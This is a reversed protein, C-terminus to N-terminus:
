APLLEDMKGLPNVTVAEHLVSITDVATEVCTICCQLVIKWPLIREDSPPVTERACFKALLPRFLLVRIHHHRMRLVNSQRQHMRSRAPDSVDWKLHVPLNRRWVWISRDMELVKGIAKAGLGGSDSALLDGHSGWSYLPTSYWATLLEAMMEYLKLTEVFFDNSAEPAWLSVDAAYDNNKETMSATPLSVAAAAHPTIMPSRGYTMSLTRDMLVCGHWVRRIMSTEDEPSAGAVQPLDLGLSQAIRIALGVFTWCQQSDHTSQLYQGLLLFCQVSSISQRRVLDLELFEDARRYFVDAERARHAPEIAADLNCALAFVTNLTCLFTPFEEDLDGGTWLLQYMPQFTQKDLFPYLTDVLDWYCNLLHDARHRPPLIYDDLRPHRRHSKAPTSKPSTSQQANSFTSNRNLVRRLQNTFSKASSNEHENPISRQEVELLGMMASNGHNSEVDDIPQHHTISPTVAEGSAPPQPVVSGQAGELERIRQQLRQFDDKTVGPGRGKRAGWECYASM